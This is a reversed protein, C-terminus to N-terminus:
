GFFEDLDVTRPEGVGPSNSKYRYQAPRQSDHFYVARLDGAPSVEIFPNSVLFDRVQPTDRRAHIWLRKDGFHNPPLVVRSGFSRKLQYTGKSLFPETGQLDFQRVGNDAAWGIVLYHIVKLAGAAYYEDSGNVVGILRSTLIRNKPDWHCLHGAVREGDMNLSFLVGNRFLCEYAAAIGETRQQEGHRRGMTALYVRDYFDDFQAPDREVHLTWAHKRQYGRINRREGRSIRGLAPEAGHELDIVFHLRMPAIVARVPPLRTTREATTGLIVIDGEPLGEIDELQRARIHSNERVPPLRDDQVIQRRAETFDLTYARGEPLGAYVITTNAVTSLVVPLRATSRVDWRRRLSRVLPDASNRWHYGARVQARQYATYRSPPRQKALSDLSPISM